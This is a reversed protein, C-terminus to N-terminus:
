QPRFLRPRARSFSQRGAKWGALVPANTRVATAPDPADILVIDARDGVELGYPAGIQRAANASVMDFVAALDADRALQAVNAFLNAMRIMAADGFPTFPNLINNSSLSVTAGQAALLLGPALGRPVLHDSGRGTLFLDTAPLITVAIGARALGTAFAAAEAHPMASLKTVHGVSVRGQYGRRMTQAVIEPLASGEPDLDFDVHFDVDVGFREALDFVAEIHATPDPDTYPCGGVLDAGSALATALMDLTEPENTLGEQAFACIEIDLGFAYDAKVRKVAEFSRFGARPDIEVFGRMRTTGQLIAMEAVRSARSHVDDETFAAKARATLAIAEGLTGEYLPCRDLILAKDLHIHTEVFGPFALCGMADIRSVDTDPVAGTAAIRGDRVLIDHTGERGALRAGALVFADSM